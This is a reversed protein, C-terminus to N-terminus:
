DDIDPRFSQTTAIVWCYGIHRIAVGVYEYLIYTNVSALRAVPKPCQSIIRVYIYLMLLESCGLLPSRSAIM